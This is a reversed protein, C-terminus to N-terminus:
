CYCMARTKYWQLVQELSEFDLHSVGTKDHKAVTRFQSKRRRFFNRFLVEELQHIERQWCYWLCKSKLSCHRAVVAKRRRVTFCVKEFLISCWTWVDEFCSYLRTEETFGRSMKGANRWRRSGCLQAGSQVCIQTGLLLLIYVCISIFKFLPIGSRSM